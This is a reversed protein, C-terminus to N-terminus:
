KPLQNRDGDLEVPSSNSASEATKPLATPQLSSRDLVIGIDSCYIRLFKTKEKGDKTTSDVLELSGTIWVLSGKRIKLRQLKPLIDERVWIQYGQCRSMGLYEKVFFYVYATGKQSTRPVIDQAVFGIVNIQAMKGGKQRLVLYRYLFALPCLAVLPMTLESVHRVIKVGHAVHSLFGRGASNLRIELRISIVCM